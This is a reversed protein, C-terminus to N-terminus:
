KNLVNINKNILLNINQLMIKSYFINANSNFTLNKKLCIYIFAYM